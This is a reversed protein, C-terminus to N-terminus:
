VVADKLFTRFVVRKKEGVVHDRNRKRENQNEDRHTTCSIYLIM